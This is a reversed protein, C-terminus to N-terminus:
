RRGWAARVADCFTSALNNVARIESDLYYAALAAQRLREDLQAKNM